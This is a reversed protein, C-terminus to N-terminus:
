EFGSRFIRDLGPGGPDTIHGNASLDDDGIQGDKITYQVQNGAITAPLIYWHPATNTATPGYKWFVTGAPLPAPYTITFTLTSAATCGYTSSDFLGHPLTVGTPLPADPLVFQSYAFRCAAGGGTFSANITGSGTASSGSATTTGATVSDFATFGKGGRVLRVSYTATKPGVDAGGTLFNVEWAAPASGFGTSTWYQGSTTNPFRTWNISPTQCATEVISELEKYNPVRWDNHGAFNANNAATAAAQADAWTKGGIGGTGCFAGGYGESCQKWTLGTKTHTITADGNDILDADPTALGLSALCYQQAHLPAVPLCVAFLLVVAPVRAFRRPCHAADAHVQLRTINM